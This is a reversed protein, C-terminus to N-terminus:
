QKVCHCMGGHRLFQITQLYETCVDTQWRHQYLMTSINHNKNVKERKLLFALILLGVHEKTKTKKTVVEKLM